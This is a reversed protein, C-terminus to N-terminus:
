AAIPQHGHTRTALLQDDYRRRTVTDRETARVLSNAHPQSKIVVHMDRKLHGPLRMKEGRNYINM